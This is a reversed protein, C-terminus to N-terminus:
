WRARERDWENWATSTCRAASDTNGSVTVGLRISRFQGPAKSTAPLTLRWAKRGYQPARSRERSWPVAVPASSLGPALTGSQITTTSRYTNVGTLIRRRHDQPRAQESGMRDGRGSEATTTGTITLLESANSSSTVINVGSGSSALGAITQNNGNLDYTNVASGSDSVAGLMLITSVPLANVEGAGNQLYSSGSVVTPGVYNM